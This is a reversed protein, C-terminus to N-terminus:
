PECLGTMGLSYRSIDTRYHTRSAPPLGVSIASRTDQSRSFCAPMGTVLVFATTVSSMLSQDLSAPCIANGSKAQPASPFSTSSSGPRTRFVGRDNCVGRDEAGSVRSSPFRPVVHLFLTCTMKRKYVIDGTSARYQRRFTALIGYKKKRKKKQM